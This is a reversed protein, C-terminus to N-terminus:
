QNPQCVVGSLDCGKFGEGNMTNDHVSVNALGPVRGDNAFFVALQKHSGGFTNGYADVNRASNIIMGANRTTTAHAAGGNNQILNGSFVAPGSSIEDHIGVKGNGSVTSGRVEFSGCEEDCWVGTWYNDHINSNIVRLSSPSKIGAASVKGGDRTFSYSGNHDIEPNKVLLRDGMGGIGQNANGYARVNDVMLDTGGGIGRGCDPECQNNGVAGTIELNAITAYQPGGGNFVHQVANGQVLPRTSDSYVGVFSDGTQVAVTKPVAYSGDNICFTTGRPAAEAVASLNQTPYVQTGTCASQAGASGAALLLMSSVGLALAAATACAVVTSTTHKSPKSARRFPRLIAPLNM